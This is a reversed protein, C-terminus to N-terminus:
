STTTERLRRTGLVAEIEEATVTHITRWCEAAMRLLRPDAQQYIEEGTLDRSLKLKGLQRLSKQLAFRMEASATKIINLGGHEAAQEGLVDLEQNQLQKLVILGGGLDEPVDWDYVNAM